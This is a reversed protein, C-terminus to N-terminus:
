EKNTKSENFRRLVEEYCKQDDCNSEWVDESLEHILKIDEWTLANDKEAREYGLIYGVRKANRELDMLRELPYQKYAAEEAKTMNNIYQWIYKSKRSEMFLLM